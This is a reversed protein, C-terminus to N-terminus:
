YFKLLLCVEGYFRPVPEVQRLFNENTKDKLLLDSKM